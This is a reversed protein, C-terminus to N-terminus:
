VRRDKSTPHPPTRAKMKPLARSGLEREVGNEVGTGASDEVARSACVSLQICFPVFVVLIYFNQYYLAM